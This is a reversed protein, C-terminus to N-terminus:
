LTARRCWNKRETERRLANAAFSERGADVGEVTRFFSAAVRRVETILLAGFNNVISAAHAM